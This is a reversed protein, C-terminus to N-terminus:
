VGGEAGEGLSIGGLCWIGRGGGAGTRKSFVVQLLLLFVRGEERRDNHNGQLSMKIHRIEKVEERKHTFNHLYFPM